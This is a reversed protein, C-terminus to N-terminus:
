PSIAPKQDVLEANPLWEIEDISNAFLFTELELFGVEENNPDVYIIFSNNDPNHYLASNIGEFPLNKVMESVLGLNPEIQPQINPFEVEENTILTPEPSNAEEEQTKPLDSEEVSTNNNSLLDFSGVTIMYYVVLLAVIVFLVVVLLFTNNKFINPRKDNMINLEL